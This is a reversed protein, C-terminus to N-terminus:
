PGGQITFHANAAVHIGGASQLANQMFGTILGYNFLLIVNVDGLHWTNDYKAPPNAETGATTGSPTTYCVYLYVQNAGTPYASSDYPPNHYSNGDTPNPCTGQVASVTPLHAGVLGQNVSDVIGSACTGGSGTNTADCLYANWRNQNDFWAAHRAAAFATGRLASTFYFIRAFDLLGTVLLLLVTATVAFEALSQGRQGSGRGLRAGVM